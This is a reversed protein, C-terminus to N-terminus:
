KGEKRRSSLTEQITELRDRIRKEFGLDSPTYYRRGKLKEPLCEMSAVKDEENHAYRYGKGYGLNKMLTTPANRLHLPVPENLSSEVDKMVKGYGTYLSNSKPAQALYVAAQALALKGEPLGIFHYANMADVTVGLARPDALGVDESAFRVLRRAIYLPDEGAELMRALWYLSADVDSNRMSKHLASILNYHEEGSKDYRLTRQQLAIELLEATIVIKEPNRQRAMQAVIELSNLAVRADGNAFSSIQQLVDDGIEINWSGLGREPESLASRLIHKIHSEELPNLVVVRTRSLLPSIVEYSPNETTAGILILTGNEVHPLFADQQAKNFRHIEDVFLITRKSFVRKQYEAEDIVKKVEKVGSLVASVSAFYSETKHAIIQALTTKGVGPPGWFIISPIQDSVIAESLFKGHGLIHEQGQVELLETPRMRDALPATSLQDGDFNFLSKNM